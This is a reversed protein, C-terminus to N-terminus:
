TINKYKEITWRVAETTMPLGQGAWVAVGRTWGAGRDMEACRGGGAFMRDEGGM